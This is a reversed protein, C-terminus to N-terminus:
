RSRKFHSPLPATLILDKNPQRLRSNGQEARSTDNGDDEDLLSLDQASLFPKTITSVRRRTPKNAAISPGTIVAETVKLGFLVPPTSAKRM